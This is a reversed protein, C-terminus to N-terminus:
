KNMKCNLCIANAGVTFGGNRESKFFAIIKFGIDM